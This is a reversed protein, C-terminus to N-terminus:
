TLALKAALRDLFRLIPKFVSELRAILYITGVGLLAGAVVDSPYHVGAIIRALGYLAGLMGLAKGLTRNNYWAGAAFCFAVTLPVSPMSSVSPRYFLLRVEEIAFPRPRFYIYSLDKILANSFLIGLGIVLVAHRNRLRDEPTDGSFWLWVAVLSMATPIVYDNVLFRVIWDLVPSIGALNNLLHFIAIDPNM